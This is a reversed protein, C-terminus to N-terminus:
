HRIIQPPASTIILPIFHVVFTHAQIMGLGGGGWDMSFITKWSVPGHHWLPQFGRTYHFSFLTLPSVHSTPGTIVILQWLCIVRQNDVSPLFVIQNYINCKIRWWIRVCSFLSVAEVMYRQTVTNILYHLLSLSQLWVCSPELVALGLICIKKWDQVRKIVGHKLSILSLSLYSHFDM